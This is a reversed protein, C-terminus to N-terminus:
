YKTTENLQAKALKQGLFLTPGIKPAVKSLPRKKSFVRRFLKLGSHLSCISAFPKCKIHIPHHLQHLQEQIQRSRTGNFLKEWGDDWELKNLRRIETGVDPM